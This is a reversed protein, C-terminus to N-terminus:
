QKEVQLTYSGTANPQLSNARIVYDGDAPLTVELRSDSGGGSDDDSAIASFRGGTLTGYSLYSDFASSRLTIVLREGAHGHYVYPDFYSNDNARADSTALAGAVPDGVGIETLALAPRAAAAAAADGQELALEFSGLAPALTNAHIVYAGDAPLTFVIRADNAGSTADDNTALSTFGSGAAQGLNLFADMEASRMTVQVTQGARGTFTYQEYSTGDSELPSQETLTGGVTQGLAIPHDVVPGPPTAAELELTFAGTSVAVSNAHIELDGDAAFVYRVRADTGGAGDDNMVGQRYAGEARTGASLFADFASSRMTVRVAEGRRGHYLYSKYHSSDSPSVRPDSATLESTITQGLRIPQQARAPHSALLLTAAALAPRYRLPHHM